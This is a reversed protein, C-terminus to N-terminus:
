VTARENLEIERAQLLQKRVFRLLIISLALWKDDPKAPGAVHQLATVLMVAMDDICRENECPMRVAAAVHVLLDKLEGRFSWALYPKAIIGRAVDDLDSLIQVVTPRTAASNSM